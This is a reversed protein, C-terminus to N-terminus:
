SLEGEYLRLRSKLFNIEDQMDNIRQLLQYVADIGQTNIELENHLRVFKEAEALNWIPIYKDEEAIVIDILGHEQLSEMFSLEVGYHYCFTTIPIFQQTDM